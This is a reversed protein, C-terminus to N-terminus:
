GINGVVRKEPPIQTAPPLCDTEGIVSLDKWSAFFNTWSETTDKVPGRFGGSTRDFRYAAYGHMELAEFVKRSEIGAGKLPDKSIEFCIYDVRQDKLLRGAGQFVAAEFGEVDVKLFNIREIREEDCFEDLTRARVSVSESPRIFTGNPAKMSPMGLTNWEAFQPEFLNMQVAGSKECIASQVATVNECRNLALTERLRWYTDPVPEFAWVSGKPGCLRSLLVSYIGLNAGVDFAVDGEKVLRRIAQFEAVDYPHRVLTHINPRDWPYLVFRTGYVDEAVLVKGRLIRRRDGYERLKARSYDYFWHWLHLVARGLSRIPSPLALTM